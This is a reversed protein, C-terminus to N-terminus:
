AASVKTIDQMTLVPNSAKGVARMAFHLEPSWLASDYWPSTFLKRMNRHGAIIRKKTSPEECSESSSSSSMSSPHPFKIPIYASLLDSTSELDDIHHKTPLARPSSSFLAHNFPPPTWTQGLISSDTTSDSDSRLTGQM